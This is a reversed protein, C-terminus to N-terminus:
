KKFIITKPPIFDGKIRKKKKVRKIKKKKM